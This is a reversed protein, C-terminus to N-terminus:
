MVAPLSWVGRANAAVLKGGGIRLVEKTEELFQAGLRRSLIKVNSGCNPDIWPGTGITL